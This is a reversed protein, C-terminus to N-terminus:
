GGKYPALDVVSRSAIRLNEDGTLATNPLFYDSTQNVRVAFATV